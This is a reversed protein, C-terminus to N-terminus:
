HEDSGPLRQGHQRRQRPARRLRISHRIALYRHTQGPRTRAVAAQRGPHGLGRLGPGMCRQNAHDPSFSQYSSSATATAGLALDEPGQDATAPKISVSGLGAPAVGGNGAWFDGKTISFSKYGTGGGSVVGVDGNGLLATDPMGTTLANVYSQDTWTGTIGALKAQLATWEDSATAPVGAAATASVTLTSAGALTAVAVLLALTRSRRRPAHPHDHSLDDEKILQEAHHALL